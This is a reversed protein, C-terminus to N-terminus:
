GTFISLSCCLSDTRKVGGELKRHTNGMMPVAMKLNLKQKPVNLRKQEFFQTLSLCFTHRQDCRRTEEVNLNRFYEVCASNMCFFQVKALVREM